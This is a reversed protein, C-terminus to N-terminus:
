RGAAPNLPPVATVTASPPIPYVREGEVVEAAWKGVAPWHVEAVYSVVVQQKRKLDDHPIGSV